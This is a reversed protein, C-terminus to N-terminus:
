HIDVLFVHLQDLRTTLTTIGGSKGSVSDGLFGIKDLAICELLGFVTHVDADAQAKGQEIEQGGLAIVVVVGVIGCESDGVVGERSKWLGPM